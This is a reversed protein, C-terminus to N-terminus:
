VQEKQVHLCRMQLQKSVNHWEICVRNENKEEASEWTVTYMVGGVNTMYAQPAIVDYLHATIQEELLTNATYWLRTNTREQLLYIAQPLIATLVILLISMSAVM